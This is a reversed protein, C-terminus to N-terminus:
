ILSDIKRSHTYVGPLQMEYIEHLCYDEIMATFLFFTIEPSCHHLLAAVIFNMGQVYGINPM